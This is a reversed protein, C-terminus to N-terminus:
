GKPKGKGKHWAVPSFRRHQAAIDAQAIAVYRNTMTLSEHGLLTRLTFVNGGARLFFIAFTHRFTHPSCRVGDVGAVQGLRQVLQFLGSATIGDGAVQGRESLFLPTDDEVGRENLYQYLARKTDRSFPVPRGKGGKGERVHVQGAHLDVDACTLACLESARIGTDLLLLLIAEDRRPNGRREPPKGKGKGAPKGPRRAAQLLADIQEGTFPEIQDPRDVPPPIRAMPSATLEGEAVLWGFFTRLTSHYSKSTGSRVSRTMRPNGWRGGTEKHGHVLYAFFARLAHVDCDDLAREKLFWLLNKIRERRSSLTRASHRNIDGALLWSDVLRPLLRTSVSAEADGSKSFPPATKRM